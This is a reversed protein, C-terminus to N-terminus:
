RSQITSSGQLSRVSSLRSRFFALSTRSSSWKLRSFILSRNRSYRATFLSRCFIRPGMRQKTPGGPTPLVERPFDM